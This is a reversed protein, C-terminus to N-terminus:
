DLDIPIYVDTILEEDSSVQHQMTVYHFFCPHARAKYKSQPLWQQYVFYIAEGLDQTGLRRVVACKGAPIKSNVVGFENEPIDQEISGCVDWRFQGEPTQNPDSHPIGFTKSTAIPSYGTHKRWEIFKHATQLVNDASGIHSLVAIKTAPFDIVSVNMNIMVKDFSSM